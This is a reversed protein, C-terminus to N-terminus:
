DDQYMEPSEWTFRRRRTTQHKPPRPLSEPPSLIATIPPSQAVLPEDAPMPPRYALVEFTEPQPAIVIHPPEPLPVPKSPKAPAPPLSALPWYDPLNLNIPAKEQARAVTAFRRQWAQSLADIDPWEEAVPKPKKKKERKPKPPLPHVPDFLMEEAAAMQLLPNPDIAPV